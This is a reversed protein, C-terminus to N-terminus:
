SSPCNMLTYPSICQIEQQRMADVCNLRSQANAPDENMEPTGHVSQCVAINQLYEQRCAAVCAENKEFPDAQSLSWQTRASYLDLNWLGRYFDYFGTDGLGAADPPPCNMGFCATQAAATGTALLPLSALAFALRKM